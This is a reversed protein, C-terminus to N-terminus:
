TTRVLIKFLIIANWYKSFIEPRFLNFRRNSDIIQLLHISPVPKSPISAAEVTILHSKAQATAEILALQNHLPERFNMHNLLIITM